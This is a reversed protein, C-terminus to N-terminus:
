AFSAADVSVPKDASSREVMTPCCTSLMLTGTTWNSVAASLWAIVIAAASVSSDPTHSARTIARIANLIVVHTQQANLRFLQVITLERRSQTANMCPSGASIAAVKWRITGQMNVGTMHIEHSVHQKLPQQPAAQWPM